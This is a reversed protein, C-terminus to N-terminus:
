KTPGIAPESELDYTFLTESPTGSSLEKIIADIVMNRCMALVGDLDRMVELYSLERKIGPSIKEQLKGTIARTACAQGRWWAPHALDTGDNNPDDAIATLEQKNQTTTM